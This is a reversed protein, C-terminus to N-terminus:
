SAAIGFTPTNLGTGSITGHTAPYRGATFGVLGWCVMTSMLNSASATDVRIFMPDGEAKWIICENANVGVIVDRTSEITTPINADTVVPLGALIGRVGSGYETGADTGIIQPPTNAQQVLPVYTSIASNFFSRRRPHLIWHTLGGFGPVDTECQQILDHLPGWAEPATPTADTYTVTNIGVVNRVGLVTGNTEDSNLAQYDVMARYRTILDGAILEDAGNSRELTQWSVDQKGAITRVPITLQTDDMDTESVAANESTQSAASSATTVRCVVFSMGYTPLPLQRCIQIFPDGNSVAPAVLDVLYQPVTLGSFASTGVDRTQLDRKEGAASIDPRHTREERMHQELRGRAELPDGGAGTATTFVDRFFSTGERLAAHRTYTRPESTITGDGHERRHDGTPAGTPLLEGQLKRVAEDRVLEDDLERQEEALLLLKSDIARIDQVATTIRATLEDPVAGTEPIESRASELDTTLTSRREILTVISARIAEIRQKINM